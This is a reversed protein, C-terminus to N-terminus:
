DVEGAVGEGRYLYADIDTSSVLLENRMREPDGSLRADVSPVGRVVGSRVLLAMREKRCRAYRAAEAIGRLWQNPAVAATSDKKETAM